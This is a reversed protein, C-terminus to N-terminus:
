MHCLLACLYDNYAVLKVLWICQLAFDDISFYNIVKVPDLVFMDQVVSLFFASLWDNAKDKGWQQSYMVCFFSSLLVAAFVLFWAVYITWFPFLMGSEVTYTHLTKELIEDDTLQFYCYVLNIHICNFHVITWINWVACCYHLKFYSLNFVRNKLRASFDIRTYYDEVFKYLTWLNLYLRTNWYIDRHASHLATQCKM